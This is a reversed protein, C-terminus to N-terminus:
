QGAEKALKIMDNWAAQLKDEAEEGPDRGYRVQRDYEANLASWNLVARGIAQYANAADALDERVRRVSDPDLLDRPLMNLWDRASILREVLASM